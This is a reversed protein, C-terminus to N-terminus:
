WVQFLPSIQSIDDGSEGSNDVDGLSPSIKSFNDGSNDVDGAEHGHHDNCQKFPSQSSPLGSSFFLPVLPKEGKLRIGFGFCKLRIGFEFCKLRIGFEFCEGKLRIGFGFCETM